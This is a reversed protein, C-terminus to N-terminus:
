DAWFQYGLVAQKYAASDDDVIICEMFNPDSNYPDLM